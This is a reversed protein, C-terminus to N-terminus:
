PAEKKVFSIDGSRELRIEKINVFSNSNVDKRLSELIDEESINSSKLNEIIIRGNKMLLLDEGKFVIGTKKSRFTIWAILRHLLMIVCVAVIAGFFNQNSSVIGRGLIAGLMLTTLNDFASQKGLTRIGSIRILLLSIFFTFIGRAIMQYATLKEADLGFLNEIFQM